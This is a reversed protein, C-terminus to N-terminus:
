NLTFNDFCIFKHLLEVFVFLYGILEAQLEFVQTIHYKYLAVIFM